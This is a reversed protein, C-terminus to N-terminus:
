RVVLVSCAAHRVVRAANSGIFYGAVSPLHSGTIILDAGLKEAEAIVEDYVTGFRVSTTVQGAKLGLEAGLGELFETTQGSALQEFNEHLFQSVIAPAAPVVGLLCLEADNAEAIQKAVGLTRRSHAGEEPDLAVLIKKFM